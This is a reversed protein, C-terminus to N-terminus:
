DKLFENKIDKENLKNKIEFIYCDQFVCKQPNLFYFNLMM